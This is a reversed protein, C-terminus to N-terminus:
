TMHSGASLGVMHCNCCPNCVSRSMALLAANSSRMLGLM